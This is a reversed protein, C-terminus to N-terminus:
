VAYHCILLSAAMFKLMHASVGDPGSSKAVDLSTLLHFVDDESCLLDVSPVLQSSLPLSLPPYCTNFCTSFYSNLLDAKERSTVATKGSSPDTLVPVSTGPSKFLPKCYKWFTQPSSLDVRQFYAKKALRLQSM